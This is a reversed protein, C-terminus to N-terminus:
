FRENFASALQSLKPVTKIKVNLEQVALALAMVGDDHYGEPASYSIHGSPSVEYDFISMENYLWQTSEDLRIKLMQNEIAVQLDQVLKGKPIKFMNGEISEKATAIGSKGGTSWYGIIKIPVKAKDLEQKLLPYFVSGYTTADFSLVGPYRKVYGAIIEAQQLWEYHRFRRHDVMCNRDRDFTLIATYDRDKGLDLGHVFRQSIKPLEFVPSFIKDLGAFVAGANDTFEALYHVRFVAEPLQRKAEAIEAPDIYPNDSSKAHFSAYEPYDPDNGRLFEQYFWNKGRPRSILLARGKTDSLAPRLAEQWVRLGDKLLAAEDIVLFNIGEGELHQPNDASKIWIRSGNLLEVYKESKNWAKILCKPIYQEFFRWGKMAQAYVPAVWWIVQNPAEGARIAADVGLLTKGFRRGAAVIRFRHPDDIIEAQRPFDLLKYGDLKPM